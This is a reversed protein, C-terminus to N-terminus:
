TYYREYQANANVKDYLVAFFRIRTNVKELRTLRENFDVKTLTYLLDRDHSHINM